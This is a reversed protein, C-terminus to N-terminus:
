TKAPAPPTAGAPQSSGRRHSVRPELGTVCLWPHHHLNNIGASPLPLTLLELDDKAGSHAPLRRLSFKFNQRLIFQINCKNYM